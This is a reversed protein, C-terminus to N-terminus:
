DSSRRNEAVDSKSFWTFITVAVAASFSFWAALIFPEGYESRYALFSGAEDGFNRGSILIAPVTQWSALLIAWCVFLAAVVFYLGSKKM